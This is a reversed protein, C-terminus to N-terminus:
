APVEDALWSQLIQAVDEPKREALASLEDLAHKSAEAVPNIVPVDIAAIDDDDDDGPLPASKLADLDIPTSVERRAKRTSLFALIIAILAILGIVGTKILSQTQAAAQAAVEAAAAETAQTEAATDFALRTVVVQDGRATDVGSATSVLEEIAAVQEETVVAEDVLVAVHLREIAGPEDKVSEVTRNIAYNREADDKNYTNEGGTAAVPTQVAGDPGLVGTSGDAQTGTYTETSVRESAVVGAGETATTDYIESVAERQTLDLDARVTVAVNDAGTVRAIMARLESAIDHEM